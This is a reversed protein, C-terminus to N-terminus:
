RELGKFPVGEAEWEVTAIAVDLLSGYEGVVTRGGARLLEVLYLKHGTVAEIVERVLISEPSPFEVIDGM